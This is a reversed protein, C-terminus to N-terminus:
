ASHFLNQTHDESQRQAAHKRRQGNAGLFGSDGHLRVGGLNAVAIHRQDAVHIIQNGDIHVLLCLTGCTRQLLRHSVEADAARNQTQNVIGTDVIDDLAVPLARDHNQNRETQEIQGDNLLKLRKQQHRNCEAHQQGVQRQRANHVLRNVLNQGVRRVVALVTNRNVIAVQQDTILVDFLVATQKIVEILANLQADERREDEHADARHGVEQGSIAM